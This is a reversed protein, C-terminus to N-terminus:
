HYYNPKIKMEVRKLSYFRKWDYWWVGTDNNTGNGLYKGNLNADGCDHSYWFAGHFEEACNIEVNQRDKTSFSQNNHYNLSDGTFLINM